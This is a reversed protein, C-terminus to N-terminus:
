CEKGVRREESRISGRIIKRKRKRRLKTDKHIYCRKLKTKSTNTQATMFLASDQCLSAAGGGRDEVGTLPLRSIVILLGSPIPGLRNFRIINSHYDRHFRRNSLIIPFVSWDKKFIVLPGKNGHSISGYIM